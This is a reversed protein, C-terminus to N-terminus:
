TGPFILHAAGHNLGSIHILSFFEKGVFFLSLLTGKVDYAIIKFIKRMSHQFRNSDIAVKENGPLNLVVM